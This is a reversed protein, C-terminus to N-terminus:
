IHVVYSKLNGWLTELNNAVNGQRMGLLLRIKSSLSNDSQYLLLGDYQKVHEFMRLECLLRYVTVTAHSEGLMGTKDRMLLRVDWFWKTNMKQHSHTQFQCAAHSTLIVSGLGYSKIQSSQQSYLVGACLLKWQKNTDFLFLPPSRLLTLISSRSLSLPFCLSNRLSFYPSYKQM